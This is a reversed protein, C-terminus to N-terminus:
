RKYRDPNSKNRSSVYSNNDKANATRNMRAFASDAPTPKISQGAQIPKKTHEPIQVRDITRRANKMESSFISPNRKPTVATPKSTNSAPFRPRDPFASTVVKAPDQKYSGVSTKNVIKRKQKGAKKFNPNDRGLGPSTSYDMQFINKPGAM